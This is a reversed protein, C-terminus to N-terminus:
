KNTPRGIVKFHKEIANADIEDLEPDNEQLSKSGRISVNCNVQLRLSRGNVKQEQKCHAMWGFGEKFECPVVDFNLSLNGAKKLFVAPTLAEIGEKSGLVSAICSPNTYCKKGDVEVIVTGLAAQWGYGGSSFMRPKLGM